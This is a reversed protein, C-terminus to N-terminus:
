ESGIKLFLKTISYICFLAMTMCLLESRRFMFVFFAGGLVGLAIIVVLVIPVVIAAIPM